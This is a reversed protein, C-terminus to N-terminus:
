EKRNIVYKELHKVFRLRESSVAVMLIRTLVFDFLIFDFLNEYVTILWNTNEIVGFV